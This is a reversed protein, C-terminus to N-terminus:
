PGATLFNDVNKKMILTLSHVHGLIYKNKKSVNTLIGCLFSSIYFSYVQCGNRLRFYIRWSTLLFRITVTICVQQKVTLATSKYIFMRVRKSSIHWSEKDFIYRRKLADDNLNIIFFFLEGLFEKRTKPPQVILAANKLQYM